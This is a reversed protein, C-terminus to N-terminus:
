PRTAQLGVRSAKRWHPTFCHQPVRYPDVALPTDVAVTTDCRGRCAWLGCWKIFLWCIGATGRLGGGR